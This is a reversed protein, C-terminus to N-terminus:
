TPLLACPFLQPRGFLSWFLSLLTRLRLATCRIGSEADRRTNEGGHYPDCVSAASGLAPIRRGPPRFLTWGFNVLFIAPRVSLYHLSLAPSYIRYIFVVSCFVIRLRLRVCVCVYPVCPTSPPPFYCHWACVLGCFCKIRASSGNM